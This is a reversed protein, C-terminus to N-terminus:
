VTTNNSFSHRRYSRSNRSWSRKEASDCRLGTPRGIIGSIMRSMTLTSSM